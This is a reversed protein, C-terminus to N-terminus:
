VVEFLVVLELPGMHHDTEIQELASIIQSPRRGELKLDQFVVIIVKLCSLV